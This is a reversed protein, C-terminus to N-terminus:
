GTSVEIKRPKIEEVKPLTVLLQGNKMSAEIQTRDIEDSLTFSRQYDGVRYERYTLEHAEPLFEEISGKVTLVNKELTLDVASEGVGPMDLAVFVANDDEFIDVRPIFRRRPRKMEVAESEKLEDEQIDVTM